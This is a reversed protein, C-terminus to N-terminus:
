PHQLVQRPAPVSGEEGTATGHSGDGQQVEYLRPRQPCSPTSKLSSALRGKVYVTTDVEALNVGVNLKTDM